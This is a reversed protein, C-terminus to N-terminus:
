TLNFPGDCVARLLEASQACLVVRGGCRAEYTGGASVYSLASELGAGRLACAIPRTEGRMGSQGLFTEGRRGGAERGWSGLLRRGLLRRRRTSRARRIRRAEVRLDATLDAISVVSDAWATGFLPDVGTWRVRVWLQRGRQVAPRRVGLVWDM